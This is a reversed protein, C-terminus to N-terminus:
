DNETVGLCETLYDSFTFIDGDIWTQSGDIVNRLDIEGIGTEQFIVKETSMDWIRFSMDCRYEIGDVTTKEIWDTPIAKQKNETM